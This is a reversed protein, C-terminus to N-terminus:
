QYQSLIKRPPPFLCIKPQDTLFRKTLTCITKLVLALHKMINFVNQHLYTFLLRLHVLYNNKEVNRLYLCWTKISRYSSFHLVFFIPMLNMEFRLVITHCRIITKGDNRWGNHGVHMDLTSYKDTLKDLKISFDSKIRTGAKTKINNPKYFTHLYSFQFNFYHTYLM